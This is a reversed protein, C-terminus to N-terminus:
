KLFAALSTIAVLKFCSSVRWDAGLGTPLIIEGGALLGEGTATIGMALEWLCSSITSLTAGVAVPGSAFDSQRMDSLM